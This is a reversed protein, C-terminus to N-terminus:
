LAAAQESRVIPVPEGTQKRIAWASKFNRSLEARISDYIIPDKFQEELAKTKSNRYRFWDEAAEKVFKKLLKRIFKTSKLSRLSKIYTEFIGWVIMKQYSRDIAEVLLAQAFARDDDTLEGPALGVGSFFLDLVHWAENHDLIVESSDFNKLEGAM